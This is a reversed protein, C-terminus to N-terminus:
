ARYRCVTGKMCQGCAFGQSGNKGAPGSKMYINGNVAVAPNGQKTKVVEFQVDSFEEVDATNFHVVKLSKRGKVTPVDAVPRKMSSAGIDHVTMRRHNHMPTPGAIKVENNSIQSKLITNLDLRLEAKKTEPSTSSLDMPNTDDSSSEELIKKLKNYNEKMKSTTARVTVFSPNFEAFMPVEPKKFKKQGELSMWRLDYADLVFDKCSECIQYPAGDGECIKIPCVVQVIVFLPTEEHILSLPVM